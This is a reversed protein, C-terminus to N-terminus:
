ENNSLQKKKINKMETQVNFIHYAYTFKYFGIVGCALSGLSYTSIQKYNLTNWIFKMRTFLFLSAGTLLIGQIYHCAPCEKKLILSNRYVEYERELFKDHSLNRKNENNM